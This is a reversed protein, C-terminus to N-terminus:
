RLSRQVRSVSQKVEGVAGLLIQYLEPLNVTVQNDESPPATTGKGGGAVFLAGPAVMWLSGKRSVEVKIPGLCRERAVM